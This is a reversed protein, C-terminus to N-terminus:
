PRRNPDDPGVAGDPRRNLPLRIRAATGAGVKSSLEIKGGMESVLGHVAALGLGPNDADGGGLAGKTTFFPEFLRDKMDDPIGCGTDVIDIVAEDNERRMTITLTGDITMADFANQALSELVPMLRQAEFPPSAVEDIHTVLHVKGREAQPQIREIFTRMLLNLEASQSTENESEAFAALQKTIRTARGIAQALLRLTRRLERPSDSALVSDISTLMGGLINNFHHTVAGAMNGLSAMRRSRALEQSMQKRLSIDRMSVSVGLCAEGDIIPSAILIFTRRRGVEEEFKIEVEGTAQTALIDAFLARAADRHAEPLLEPLSRGVLANGTMGFQQVAQLNAYRINLDPDVAILLFGVHDCLHLFYRDPLGEM